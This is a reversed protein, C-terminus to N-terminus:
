SADRAAPHSQTHTWQDLYAQYNASIADAQYLGASVAVGRLGRQRLEPLDGSLIGGIAYAPLDGLTALIARWQDASLVPALKQKTPTFRFPGVGVYDLAGAAVAREADAVSNVTGGIIFDAGLAARAEPWPTDLSGLHVGDAGVARAVEVRDNIILRAGSARCVPLVETAVEAVAADTAAKMRLQIWEVGAACLGRVQAAHSLGIGDITLCQIDPWNITSKFSM